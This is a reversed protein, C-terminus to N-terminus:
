GSIWIQGIRDRNGVRKELGKMSDCQEKKYGDPLRFNESQCTRRFRQPAETERYEKEVHVENDTENLNKTIPHQEKGEMLFRFFPAPFSTSLNLRVTQLSFAATIM